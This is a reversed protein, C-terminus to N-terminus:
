EDSTEVKKLLAVPQTALLGAGDPFAVEGQQPYMTPYIKSKAAKFFAASDKVEKCVSCASSM